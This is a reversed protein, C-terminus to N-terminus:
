GKIKASLEKIAEILLPVVREYRVAKSGDPRTVVAEPLVEELQQAIVGVDHKRVFYDDLGGHNEIYEDSWDFEVGNLANVKELANSIDTVNHKFKSRFLM